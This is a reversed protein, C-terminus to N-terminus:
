GRRGFMQGAGVAFSVGDLAVTEGFRKSLDRLELATDGYPRAM